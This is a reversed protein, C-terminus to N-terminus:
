CLAPRYARPKARPSRFHLLQLTSRCRAPWHTNQASGLISGTRGQLSLSPLSPRAKRSHSRNFFVSLALRAGISAHTQKESNKPDHGKSPLRGQQEFAMRATGLHKKPFAIKLILFSGARCVARGGFPALRSYEAPGPAYEALIRTNVRARLAWEAGSAHRCQCACVRLCMGVRLRAPARQDRM